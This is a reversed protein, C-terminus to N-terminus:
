IIIIREVYGFWEYFLFAVRNFLTAKKINSFSSTFLLTGNEGGSNQQWDVIKQLAIHPMAVFFIPLTATFSCPLLPVKNNV